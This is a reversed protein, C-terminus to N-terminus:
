NLSFISHLDVIVGMHVKRVKKNSKKQGKEIASKIRKYARKLKSLELDLIVMNERVVNSDINEKNIHESCVFREHNKIADNMSKCQELAKKMAHSVFGYSEHSISGEKSLSTALQFLDSYHQQKTELQKPVRRAKSNGKVDGTWRKLIYHSPITFVGSAAM